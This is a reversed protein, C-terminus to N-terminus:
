AISGASRKSQIVPRLRDPSLPPVRLRQTGHGTRSLDPSPRKQQLCHQSFAQSPDDNKRDERSHESVQRQFNLPNALSEVVRGNLDTDSGGIM